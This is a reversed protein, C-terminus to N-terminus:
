IKKVHINKANEIAFFMPDIFKYWVHISLQANDKGTISQMNKPWCLCKHKFHLKNLRTSFHSSCYPVIHLHLTACEGKGCFTCKSSMCSCFFNLTEKLNWKNGVVEKQCSRHATKMIYPHTTQVYLSTSPRTSM